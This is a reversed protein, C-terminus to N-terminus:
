GLGALPMPPDGSELCPRFVKLIIEVADVLGALTDVASHMFPPEGLGVGIPFYSNMDM